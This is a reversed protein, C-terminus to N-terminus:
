KSNNDYYENNEKQWKRDSIKGNSYWYSEQWLMLGESYKDFYIFYGKILSVYPSSSIQIKTYDNKIIIIGVMGAQNPIPAPVNITTDHIILM